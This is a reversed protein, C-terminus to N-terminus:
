EQESLESNDVIFGKAQLTGMAVERVMEDDDELFRAIFEPARRDSIAAIVEIVHMRLWPDPDNMIADLFEVARDGDLRFLADVIAARAEEDATDWTGAITEFAKAFLNEDIPMEQHRLIRQVYEFALRGLLSTIPKRQRMDATALRDTAAAFTDDRQVLFSQLLTDLEPSAGLADIFAVTVDRDDCSGLWKAASTQINVDDDNLAKVVDPKLGATLVPHEGLRESIQILAHLLASRLKGKVTHVHQQLTHLAAANGVLGLSEILTFLTVPNQSPTTMEFNLKALLFDEARQDRIKGLAEAVPARACDFQEYTRYLHAVAEASKMNGLAEVASVVVNPDPDALLPLMQPTPEASGIAGLIDVAFKRVDQNEDELYPVLAPVAIAGLKMLLEAALNRTTINVNGIYEVIARTVNIGGIAYLSRSAADRVGKSEDQLAAALAAVPALASSESLEEAARRRTDSDEDALLLAINRRTQDTL